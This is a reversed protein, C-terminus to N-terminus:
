LTTVRFGSFLCEAAIFIQAVGDAFPYNFLVQDGTTLQLVVSGSPNWYGSVADRVIRQITVPAGNLWLQLNNGGNYGGGVSISCAWNFQYYGPAPAVFRNNATDFLGDPDFGPAAVSDFAVNGTAGNFNQNASMIARWGNVLSASLPTPNLLQFLGGTYLFMYTMGARIEGGILNNLTGSRDVTKVVKAGLAVPVNNSINLTVGATNNNLAKVFVIFGEYYATVASNIQAAMVNVAGTDTGFFQSLDLIQKVWQGGVFVYWGDITGDVNLKLWPKDQDAPAPTDHGYNFSNFKGPVYWSTVSLMADYFQQWTTFCAPPPLTGPQVYVPTSM